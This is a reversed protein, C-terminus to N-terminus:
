WVREVGASGASSNGGRNIISVANTSGRRYGAEPPPLLAAATPLGIYGLEMGSITTFSMVISRYSKVGTFYLARM